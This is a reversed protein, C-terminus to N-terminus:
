NKTVTSWMLRGKKLTEAYMRGLTVNATPCGNLRQFALRQVPLQEDRLAAPEEGDPCSGSSRRFISARCIIWCKCGADHVFKTRSASGCLVAGFRAKFWVSDSHREGNNDTLIVTELYYCDTRGDTEAVTKWILM